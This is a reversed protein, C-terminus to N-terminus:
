IPDVWFFLKALNSSYIFIILEDYDDELIYVEEYGDLKFNDVDLQKNGITIVSYPYIKIRNIIVSIKKYFEDINIEKYIFARREENFLAKNKQNYELENAQFWVVELSKDFSLNNHSQEIWLIDGYGEDQTKYELEINM